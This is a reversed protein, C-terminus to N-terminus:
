HDCLTRAISINYNIKGVGEGWQKVNLDNGNQQQKKFFSTTIFIMVCLDKLVDRIVAKLYIRLCALNSELFNNLNVPGYVM